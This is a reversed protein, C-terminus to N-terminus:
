DARRQQNRQSRLLDNVTLPKPIILQSKPADPKKPMPVEVAVALHGFADAGHSAWDHKATRAFTRNIQDWEQKYSRLCELGMPGCRKEDFWTLYRGSDDKQSLLRRAANIRDIPKHDPVLVPNRGMAILTAIRTRGGPSGPERQKADHPVYDNGGAYGREKLWDCYHDFGHGSGETYDLIHLWGPGSQFVWIAMPDDMGIDWATHIAYGRVPDLEVMNGANELRSIEKGWYAGLIAAAFSCYYEQEIMATAAEEGFMATYTQLDEAIQARLREIAGSDDVTQLEAFWNDSTLANKYMGHAHNKGEPTTIFAAWGGNEALIPSLYPWAGPSAKAWESFTIGRPAAGVLNKFNDSGVVQWSSGSKFRIFMDNDRLGDISDRPFAEFIRREQTHPNVSDWIAKRAQAYEPLMHWYNGVKGPTHASVAAWNLFIEDKGWRRHAIEIARLGGGELYDWLKRQYGRPQWNNNPLRIRAM